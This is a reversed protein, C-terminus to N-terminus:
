EVSEDTPGVIQQLREIARDWLKRVADASRQLQVGIEEFSRREYSRWQIVLRYDEPLQALAQQVAQDRERRQAQASPSSGKDLLAPIMGDASKTAMPIERDIQRKEAERFQRSVNAANHLLIQRLWALM